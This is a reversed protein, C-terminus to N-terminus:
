NHVPKVLAVFSTKTKRESLKKAGRRFLSTENLFGNTQHGEKSGFTLDQPFGVELRTRGCGARLALLTHKHNAMDHAM